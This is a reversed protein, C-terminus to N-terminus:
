IVWEEQSDCDNAWAIETEWAALWKCKGDDVLCTAFFLSICLIYGTDTVSTNHKSFVLGGWNIAVSFMKMSQGKRKLILLLLPFAIYDLNLHLWESGNMHLSINKIWSFFPCWSWVAQLVPLLLRSWSLLESLAGSWIQDASFHTQM